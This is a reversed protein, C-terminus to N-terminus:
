TAPSGLRGETMRGTAARLSMGTGHEGTRTQAGTNRSSLGKDAQLRSCCLSGRGTKNATPRAPSLPIDAVQMDVKFVQHRSEIFADPSLHLQSPVTEKLGLGSGSLGHPAAEETATPYALPGWDRVKRM